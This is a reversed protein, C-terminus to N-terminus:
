LVMTNMRCWLQLQYAVVLDKFSSSKGHCLLHVTHFTSWVQEAISRQLLDAQQLLQLLSQRAVVVVDESLESLQALLPPMHEFHHLHQMNNAQQICSLYLEKSQRPLVFGFQTSKLVFDSRAALISSPSYGISPLACSKARGFDNLTCSALTIRNFRLKISHLHFLNLVCVSVSPLFQPRGFHM